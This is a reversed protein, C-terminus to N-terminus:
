NHTEITLDSQESRIKVYHCRPESYLSLSSYPPILLLGTVCPNSSKLLVSMTAGVAVVFQRQLGRQYSLQRKPCLLFLPEYQQPCFAPFALEM